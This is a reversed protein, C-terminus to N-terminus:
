HNLVKTNLGRPCRQCIKCKMPCLDWQEGRQHPSEDVDTVMKFQGSIGSATWDSGLIILKNRKAQSFDLDQRASYCYSTFKGPRWPWEYDGAKVTVDTGPVDHDDDLTTIITKPVALKSLARSIVYMSELGAQDEIDGAESWRFAVLPKDTKRRRAHLLAVTEIMTAPDDKILRRWLENQRIRYPFASKYFQEAAWAYCVLRGDDNFAQCFSNIADPKGKKFALSPCQHAPTLNFILYSQPVKRNGFHLHAAILKMLGKDDVLKLMERVQRRNLMEIDKDIRVGKYSESTIGHKRALAGFALSKPNRRPSVDLNHKVLLGQWASVNPAVANPDFADRPYDDPM